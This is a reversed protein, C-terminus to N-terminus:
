SVRCMILKYLEDRVKPEGFCGTMLIFLGQLSNIISFTYNVVVAMIKTLDDLIFVFYGLVWTVGFVPTLVVIVRIISKATDKDDATSGEPASAKVLTLIVVGMSFLNVLIFTGVPLLFSHLSGRLLGEYTLWCSPETFYPKETYRYYVYSSGVIVSPLVYGVIASMFMYVRKRLPSFVFILQHVLMVSLCMMWCFMALFFFHQCVALALCLSGKFKGMSSALFSCYGLLLCLSINVLATHRFHSLNTKVVASWVLSEIFLFVLLSCISVGMGINSIEDLFPLNVPNKSMLTSFATLHNCKCISQNDERGASWTCGDSSWGNTKVDWFVCHVIAKQTREETMPFNLKINISSSNKPELTTSVLISTFETNPYNNALKEVLNHMAITKVLGTSNPMNVEVGFVTQNCMSHNRARCVKLQLNTTNLGETNNFDINKVLGEVSRLYNSGMNNQVSTNVGAWSQNLMDSAAELFNPLVSEKLTIKDSATSMIALIAISARLDAIDSSGSKTSNSLGEFIALAVEQTAGLGQAFNLGPTKSISLGLRRAMAIQGQDFDSLDKRKGM